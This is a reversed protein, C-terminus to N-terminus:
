AQAELALSTAAMAAEARARAVRDARMLAAIVLEGYVDAGRSAKALGLLGGLLDTAVGIAADIAAPEAVVVGPLDAVLRASLAAQLGSFPKASFPKARGTM